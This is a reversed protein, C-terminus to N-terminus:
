ITTSYGQDLHNSLHSVHFVACMCLYGSLGTSSYFALGSSPHFKKIFFQSLVMEDTRLSDNGNKWYLMLDNENYAYSELELSCNQTDLPFSSFDMSCLATVTIRVSYLISGDPYVRIMINEMTTDHIFSRKSHVFFVDPVWMKKVLRGDFTRSVNSRSPFALREDKWYHRLYLTM